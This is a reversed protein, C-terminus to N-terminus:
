ERRHAPPLMALLEQGLQGERYFWMTGPHVEGRLYAVLPQQMGPWGGKRQLRHLAIGLQVLEVDLVEGDPDECRFKGHWQAIEFLFLLTQTRQFPRDIQSVGVMQEIADVQVGTEEKVERILAETIIEGGEVLGGPLVWNAQNTKPNIQQVMVIQDQSRLIAMVVLDIHIADSTYRMTQGKISFM